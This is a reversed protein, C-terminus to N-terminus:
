HVCACVDGCVFVSVSVCLCVFVCVNVQVHVFLPFNNNPLAKIQFFVTSIHFVQLLFYFTGPCVTQVFTINM